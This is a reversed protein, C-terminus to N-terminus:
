IYNATGIATMRAIESGAIITTFEFETDESGDSVDIAFARFTAYTVDQSNDNRGRFTMSGLRDGDAPSGSNRYM